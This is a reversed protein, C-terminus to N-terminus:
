LYSEPEHYFFSAKYVGKNDPEICWSDIKYPIGSENIFWNRVIIKLKNQIRFIMANKQAFLPFSGMGAKFGAKESDSDAKLNISNVIDFGAKNRGFSAFANLDINLENLYKIEKDNLIVCVPLSESQWSVFLDSYYVDSLNEKKMLDISCIDPYAMTEVANSPDTVLKEFDVKIYVFNGPPYEFFKNSNLFYEKWDLYFTKFKGFNPLQGKPFIEEFIIKEEIKKKRFDLKAFLRKYNPLVGIKLLFEKGLNHYSINERQYIYRRKYFEADERFNIASSLQVFGTPLLLCLCSLACKKLVSEKVFFLYEFGYALFVYLALFGEIIIRYKTGQIWNRQYSLVFILSLLWCMLSLFIKRNAKWLNFIGLCIIGTFLYGFYNLINLLYFILNPFPLFPTRLWKRFMLMILSFSPQTEGVGNFGHFFIHPINFTFTIIFASIFILLTKLNLCRHHYYIVLVSGIFLLPLFRLGLGALIGFVLGHFFIKDKHEIILYFLIISVALAMVNRDLVEVSLIYPNFIAFIATLLAIFKHATLKNIVLYVFIFILFTFLIYAVKFSYFKFIPLPTSTFLINAPTCPIEYIKLTPIRHPNLENFTSFTEKFFCEAGTEKIYAGLSFLFEKNSHYYSVLLVILVAIVLVSFDTKSIGPSIPNGFNNTKRSYLNLFSFFIIVFISNLITLNNSIYKGNFFVCNINVFPGVSFALFLTVGLRELFVARKLFYRASLIGSVLMLSISIIAM